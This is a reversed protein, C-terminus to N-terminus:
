RPELLYCRDNPPKPVYMANWRLNRNPVMATDGELEFPRLPPEQGLALPVREVLPGEEVRYDVVTATSGTWGVILVAHLSHGIEPNLVTLLVPLQGVARAADIRTARLGFHEALEDARKISTGHRCGALDVIEEWAESDPDPSPLGYFRCANVLARPVCDAYKAGKQGVYQM